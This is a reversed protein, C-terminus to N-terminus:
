QEHGSAAGQGQGSQGGQKVPRPAGPEAMGGLSHIYAVLQWLANPPLSHGWAPMGKPRGEYLSKYVELATGGYRWEDDTLDPGMNGRADYGHCGACNMSLFLKRGDAVAVRDEILSAPPPSVSEPQAGASFGLPVVAAAGEPYSLSVRASTRDQTTLFWATAGAGVAAIVVAGIITHGLSM